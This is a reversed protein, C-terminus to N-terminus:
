KIQYQSNINYFLQETFFPLNKGISVKKLNIKKLLDLLKFNGERVSEEIAHIVNTNYYACLPEVLGEDHVPVVVQENEFQSLLFRLLETEVFPIDCSLVLNHRTKSHKLCALLGGMPGIEKVEDQVVQLGFQRYQELEHNASLLITSCLPAIAEISYSVLPKGGFKFLGKETGLRSSKGGSLVIGTIEDKLM